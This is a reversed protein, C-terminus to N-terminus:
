PCSDRDEPNCAELFRWPSLNFPTRTSYHGSILNCKPNRGRQPGRKEGEEHAKHSSSPYLCKEYKAIEGKARQSGLCLNIGLRSSATHPVPPRYHITICSGHPRDLSFGM